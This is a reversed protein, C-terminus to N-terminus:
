RQIIKTGEPVDFSCSVDENLTIHRYLLSFSRHIAPFSMRLSQPSLIDDANQIQSQEAEVLVRDDRDKSLYYTVVFSGADIRYETVTTGKRFAMLYEDGTFSFRLLSDYTMPVVGAFMSLIQQVPMGVHLISLLTSSDPTGELLNDEFSNYYRFREPTLALTGVHIGFPGHLSLLLSDPQKLSVVFSGSTSLEPSKISITGKGYLSHIASNRMQVRQLVNEPTLLTNRVVTSPTCGAILLILFGVIVRFEKRM